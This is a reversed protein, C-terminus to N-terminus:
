GMQRMQLGWSMPLPAGAARARNLRAIHLSAHLVLDFLPELDPGEHAKDRRLPALKFTLDDIDDDCRIRSPHCCRPLSPDESKLAGLIRRVCEVTEGITQAGEVEDHWRSEM